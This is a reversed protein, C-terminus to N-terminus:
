RALAMWPDEERRRISLGIRKRDRDVSIVEVEVEQGVKLIERPHTVHKWSLETLHVLGDAGGVDVFAGFDALSKVRGMKVDGVQLEDMLREKQQERVVPAADRESFILRNRARDVELVKVAIDEGRMPSWKEAPDNGEARRRRDRSVQSEPVFGRVRGLRVILGGKNFGDIKGNFVGGNQSLEEAQRWDREELARSLSLVVNGNKDEPNLVYATVKEGVKLRELTERDMRELEKGSIIGESKLGIDVMIETPTTQAITGEVIEGKKVRPEDSHQEFLAEMSDGSDSPAAEGEGSAGPAPAAAAPSETKEGEAKSDAPEASNSSEVAPSEDVPQEVPAVEQPPTPQPLSSVRLASSTGNATELHPEVNQPVSGQPEENGVASLNSEM